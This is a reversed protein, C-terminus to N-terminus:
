ANDVAHKQAEESRMEAEKLEVAADEAEEETLEKQPALITVVVLDPDSKIKVGPPAPIDRVLLNEGVGLTTIDVEISEPINAPLCEAEVEHVVVQMIGGERVGASDGAFELRVHTRIEENMNVKLLDVHLVQRSIEDRHVDAIMVNQKGGAPLSLELV